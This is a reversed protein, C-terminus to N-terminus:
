NEHAIYNISLMPKIAFQMLGGLTIHFPIYFGTRLDHKRNGCTISDVTLMMVEIEVKKARRMM